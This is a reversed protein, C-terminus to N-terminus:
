SIHPAGPVAGAAARAQAANQAQAFERKAAGTVPHVRTNEIAQSLTVYEARKHYQVKGAADKVARQREVGAGDTYEEMIPQQPAVIEQMEPHLDAVKIQHLNLNQAVFESLEPKAYGLGDLKDSTNVIKLVARQISEPDNAATLHSMVSELAVPVMQRQRSTKLQVFDGTPMADTFARLIAERTIKQTPDNPDASDHELFQKLNLISEEFSQDALDKRNAPTAERQRLVMHKGLPMNEGAVHAVDAVLEGIGAEAGVASDKITASAGLTENKKSVLEDTGDAWGEYYQTKGNVTRRKTHLVDRHSADTTFTDKSGDSPANRARQKYLKRGRADYKDRYAADDEVMALGRVAAAMHPNMYSNAKMVVGLSSEVANDLHNGTADNKWGASKLRNTLYDRAQAERMGLAGATLDDRAAIRVHENEKKLREFEHLTHATTNAQGENKWAQRYAKTRGLSGGVLKGTKPDVFERNKKRMAMAARAIRGPVKTPDRNAASRGSMWNNLHKGVVGGKNRLDKIFGGTARKGLPDSFKSKGTGFVMGTGGFGLKGVAMVVVSSAAAVMVLATFLQAPSNGGLDSPTLQAFTLLHTSIM